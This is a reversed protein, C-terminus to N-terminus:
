MKRFKSNLTDVGVEVMDQEAFVGVEVLADFGACQRIHDTELTHDRVEPGLVRDISQHSMKPISFLLRRIPVHKLHAPFIPM